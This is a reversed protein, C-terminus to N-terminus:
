DDSLCSGKCHQQDVGHYRSSTESANWPCWCRLSVICYGTSSSLVWSWFGMASARSSPNPTVIKNRWAALRVKASRLHEYKWYIELLLFLAFPVVALLPQLSTRAVAILGKRLGQTGPLTLLILIIAEAATVAGLAAWELAM